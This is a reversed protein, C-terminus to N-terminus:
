RFFGTAPEGCIYALCSFAIFFNWAIPARASAARSPPQPPPPAVHFYRLLQEFRWRPFVSAVFPQQYLESWYMHWRPLPCIGMYIHVGLFAYLEEVVM